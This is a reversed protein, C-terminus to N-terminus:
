RWLATLASVTSPASACRTEDSAAYRMRQISSGASDRCDISIFVSYRVATRDRFERLGAMDLCDALGRIYGVEGCGECSWKVFVRGGGSRRGVCDELKCECKSVQVQVQVRVCCVCGVGHGFVVVLEVDGHAATAAGAGNLTHELLEITLTARRM